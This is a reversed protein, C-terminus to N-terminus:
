DKYVAHSFFGVSYKDKKKELIQPQNPNPRTSTSLCSALVELLTDEM